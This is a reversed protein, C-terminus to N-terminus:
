LTAENLEREFKECETLACETCDSEKRWDGAAIFLRLAHTRPTNRRPNNLRM